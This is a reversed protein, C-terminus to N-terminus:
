ECIKCFMVKFNEVGLIVLIVIILGMVMVLKDYYDM